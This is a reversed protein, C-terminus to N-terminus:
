MGQRGGQFGHSLVGLPASGEAPTLSSLEVVEEVLVVDDRQGRQKAGAGSRRGPMEPDVNV